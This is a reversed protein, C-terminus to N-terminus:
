MSYPTLMLRLVTSEGDDFEATLVVHETAGTAIDWTWEAPGDSDLAVHRRGPGFEQELEALRLTATPPVPFYAGHRNASGVTVYGGPDDYGASALLAAIAAANPRPHAIAAILERLLAVTPEASM